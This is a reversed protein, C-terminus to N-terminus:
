KLPAVVTVQAGRQKNASGIKCAYLGVGQAAFFGAACGKEDMSDVLWVWYFQRLANSNAAIGQKALQERWHRIVILFEPSTLGSWGRTSFMKAIQDGKKGRTAPLIQQVSYFLLYPGTRHSEPGVGVQYVRGSPEKSQNDSVYPKAFRPHVPVGEVPKMVVEQIARDISSMQTKFGPFAFAEDLQLARAQGLGARIAPSMKVSSPLARAWATLSHQQYFKRSRQLIEKIDFKPSM